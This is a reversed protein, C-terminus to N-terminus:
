AKFLCYIIGLIAAILVWPLYVRRFREFFPENAQSSQQPKVMEPERDPLRYQPPRPIETPDPKPLHIRPLTRPDQGPINPIIYEVKAEPVIHPMAALDEQRHPRILTEKKRTFDFQSEPTGLSSIQETITKLDSTENVPQSRVSKENNPFEQKYIFKHPEQPTTVKGLFKEIEKKESELKTLTEGMYQLQTNIEVLRKEFIESAM